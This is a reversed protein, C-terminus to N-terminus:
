CSGSAARTWHAPSGSWFLLACCASPRAATASALIHCIRTRLRTADLVRPGTKNSAPLHDSVHAASQAIQKNQDPDREGDGHDPTQRYAQCFRSCQALIESVAMKHEVRSLSKTALQM